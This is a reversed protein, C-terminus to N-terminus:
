ESRLSYKAEGIKKLGKIKKGTTYFWSFVNNPNVKVKAAIEKVTIGDAGAAQLAKLIRGKLRKLRRRPKATAVVASKGKPRGPPRGRRKLVPSGSGLSEIQSDIHALQAQLREKEKVLGILNNLQASTLNALSM